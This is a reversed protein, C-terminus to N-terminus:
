GNPRRSWSTRSSAARSTDPDGERRSEVEIQGPAIAASDLPAYAAWAGLGGFAVLVLGYALRAPARFDAQSRTAGKIRSTM